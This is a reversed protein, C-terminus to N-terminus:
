GPRTWTSKMADNIGVILAVLDPRHAVADPLQDRLVTEATAGPVALNCFSVDYASASLAEALLRAWGRWGGVVPDGLGFTTSDGLAAFRLYRPGHTQM